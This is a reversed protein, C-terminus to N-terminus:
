LSELLERLIGIVKYFHNNENELKNIKKYEWELDFTKNAYNNLKITYIRVKIYLWKIKNLNINLREHIKNNIKNTALMTALYM